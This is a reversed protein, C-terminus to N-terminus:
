ARATPLVNYYDYMDGTGDIIMKGSEYLTYTLDEGCIGSTVTVPPIYAGRYSDGCVTCTYLTYGEQTSSPEFTEYIYNHNCGIIDYNVEENIAYIEAPTNRYCRLTFSDIQSFAGRGISVANMGMTYESLRSCGCFAYSGIVPYEQKMNFVARPMHYFAYDGIANVANDVNVQVLRDAFLKWPQTAATYDVTDYIDLTGEPIAYSYSEEDTYVMHGIDPIGWGFSDDRGEDGLDKVFDKLLDYVQDRTLNNKVLKLDACCATIFPTSFSTGSLTNAMSQGQYPYTTRVSTGQATFDVEEGYNSFSAISEGNAAAVVIVGPCCTPYRDEILVGQYTGDSNMIGNGASACICINKKLAKSVAYSIVNGSNKTYLSMNICDVNLDVAANIASVIASATCSTDGFAMVKYPQILVNDPTNNAIVGCVATSHFYKSGETENTDYYADECADSSYDVGHSYFRNQLYVHDYMVGSDIVAVVVDDTEMGIKGIYTPTGLEASASPNFDGAAVDLEAKCDGEAMMGDANMRAKAAM